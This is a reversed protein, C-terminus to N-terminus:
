IVRLLTDLHDRSATREAALNEKGDRLEPDFERWNFSQGAATHGAEHAGVTQIPEKVM